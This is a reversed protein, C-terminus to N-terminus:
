VHPQRGAADRRIAFVVPGIIPAPNNEVQIAARELGGAGLVVVIELAREVVAFQQLYVAVAVVAGLRVELRQFDISGDFAAALQHHFVHALERGGHVEVPREFVLVAGVVGFVGLRRAAARPLRADQREVVRAPGVGVVGLKAITRHERGAGVRRARHAPHGVLYDVAVNRGVLAARGSLGERAGGENPAIQAALKLVILEVAPDLALAGAHAAEDRIAAAAPAAGPHAPAAVFA